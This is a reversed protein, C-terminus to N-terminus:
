SKGLSISFSQTYESLAPIKHQICPVELVTLNIM